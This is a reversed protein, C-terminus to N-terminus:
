TANRNISISKSLEYYILNNKVTVGGFPPPFSGIYKVNEMPQSEM